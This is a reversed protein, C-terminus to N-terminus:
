FVYGTMELCLGYVKFIEGEKIPWFTDPFNKIHRQLCDSLGICIMKLVTWEIDSLFLMYLSMQLVHVVTLAHM